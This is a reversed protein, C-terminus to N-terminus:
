KVFMTFELSVRTKTGGVLGGHVLDDNFVIVGGPETDFPVVELKELILPEIIPKLIGNKKISTFGIDKLHSGPSYCFGSKGKECFLAIWVKIRKCDSPTTGHGLNWFMADTHLPGVDTPSKPRVLRWYIEEREVNEENSIMFDGLEDSLTKMFPLSRIKEVSEIPLIRNKKPWMNQHDFNDSYLHYNSMEVQSMLEDSTPYIKKLQELWQCKVLQRLVELEESSLRIKTSYGLEGFVDNKILSVACDKKSIQNM